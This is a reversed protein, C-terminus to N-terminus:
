GNILDLIKAYTEAAPGTTRRQVADCYTEIVYRSGDKFSLSYTGVGDLRMKSSGTYGLIVRSLWLTKDEVFEKIKQLM